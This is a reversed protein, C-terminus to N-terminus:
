LGSQENLLDAPHKLYGTALIQREPSLPLQRDSSVAPVSRDYWKRLDKSLHGSGGIQHVTSLENPSRIEKSFDATWVSDRLTSRQRSEIGPTTTTRRLVNRLQPPQRMGFEARLCESENGMIMIITFGYSEIDLIRTRCGKM